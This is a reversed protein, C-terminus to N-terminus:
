PASDRYYTSLQLAVELSGGRTGGESLEVNDIIVFEPATELQYIFTRMDAYSGVLVMGIKLRTLTSGREAIPEAQVREYRLNSERALQALRLHTLRRAGALNAPLVDRYFTTLETSARDKGTLTGTASGHERQAGTLSQEAAENRQAVNAVRESLPYVVAAYVIVNIVFAGVLLIILRRREGIVRRALSLGHLRDSM